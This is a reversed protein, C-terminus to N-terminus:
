VVDAEGGGEEEEEEKVQVLAMQLPSERLSEADRRVSPRGM